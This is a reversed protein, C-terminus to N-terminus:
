APRAYRQLLAELDGETYPGVKQALVAGDVGLVVTFPLVANRDGLRRALEMVEDGGSLLPYAIGLERGFRVVKGADDSAVGVFQVNRDAWRSQLRSFLPMEARCPACWTAWFNLVIVRGQFRGLAEPAGDANTFSAAFLAAPAIDADTTPAPPRTALWLATAALLALVGVLSFTWRASASPGASV